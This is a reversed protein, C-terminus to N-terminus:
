LIGCRRLFALFAWTPAVIVAGFMFFLFFMDGVEGLGQRHAAIFAGVGQVMQTWFPMKVVFINVFFAGAAVSLAGFLLLTGIWRVVDCLVCRSTM